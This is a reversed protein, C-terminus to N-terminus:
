CSRKTDNGPGGRCSDNGPGGKLVDDGPGGGLKDRGAGGGLNDDGDNGRLRDNGGGGRVIDADAGGRLLDDGGNGCIVDKGGLGRFQDDGGMLVVVDRKETGNLVDAGSTGVITAVQGKCTPGAPGPPAATVVTSETDTNNAQPDTDGVAGAVTATNTITGEKRASVQLTVTATAMSALTAFTCTVKRGQTTCSGGQSATASVLDLDASLTDKVIVNSAAAPGNNLVDITYTYASGSVVPDASDRKDISLDADAASAAGPAILAGAIVLSTIGLAGRRRRMSLM